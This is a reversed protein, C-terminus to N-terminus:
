RWHKPQQPLRPLQVLLKRLTQRPRQLHRVTTLTPAMPAMSAHTQLAFYSIDVVRKAHNDCWPLILTCQLTSQQLSIAHASRHQMCRRREAQMSEQQSRVEKSHLEETRRCVNKSRVSDATRLERSQSVGTKRSSLKWRPFPLWSKHQPPLMPQQQRTQM